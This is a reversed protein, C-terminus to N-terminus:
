QGFLYRPDFQGTLLDIGVAFLPLFIFILVFGILFRTVANEFLKLPTLLIQSFKLYKGVASNNFKDIEAYREEDYTNLNKCRRVISSFFGKINNM